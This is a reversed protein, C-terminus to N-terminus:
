FKSWTVSVGLTRPMAPIYLGGFGGQYYSHALYEEDGANKVWAAVEWESGASTYGARFNTISYEGKRSVDYNQIEQETEGKFLYEARYSLEAGSNLHTEYLAVLNYANQPANRLKNGEFPILGPSDFKSYETDLYAYNGQLSFEETIGWEFEVEIGQIDAEGANVTGVPCITTDCSPLNTAVQLDQYDTKFVAANLRLTNDLLMSKVGVEFNVATEEDYPTEAALKNAPLTGWGGSKFGSAASVYAMVDNTFQYNASFNYTPSTWKESANIDYAETAFLGIGPTGVTSFDKKDQSFRAGFTLDLSDTVSWTGQGFVAISNNEANQEFRDTLTLGEAPILAPSVLLAAPGILFAGGEARSVDEQFFYAGTQWNINDSSGAIRIEQSFMESKEQTFQTIDFIPFAQLGMGVTSNAMDTETERYATISTITIDDLDWDMQLSLGSNEVNQHGPDELLTDHFGIKPVASLDPLSPIAGKLIPYGGNALFNVIDGTGAGPNLQPNVNLGGREDKIHDATILGSFSSSPTFALQARLAKSDMDGTDADSSYASEFVDGREKVSVTAKAAITDSLPGSVLGQIGRSEYNGASVKVKAEFEQGPKQTRVNVVGAAANKGWLTGQPGRLVEIAELDFLETAGASARNMYVGDVFTAVSAEGGAAGRGNSGVGRIYLMPQAASYTGMSFGPTRLAIDEVNTIGAQEITRSDIATVAIPVDQLSESRKTATIVIEELVQAQLGISGSAIAIALVTKKLCSSNM